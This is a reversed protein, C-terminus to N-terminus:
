IYFEPALLNFKNVLFIESEVKELGNTNVAGTDASRREIKFHTAGV